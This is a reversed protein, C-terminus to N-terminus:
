LRTEGDKTVVHCYPMPFFLKGGKELYPQERKILEDKFFWILVLMSSPELERAKEESVLEIDTGLTRLGVKEPNRESIYPLAEKDIGFFQLLVNGKTSAGLGAVTGGNKNEQRIFDNTTKKLEEVQLFFDEYTSSEMLKMDDEAKMLRLLNESKERANEKRTVFVRVSGGNVDNTSADYISLGNREMLNNFTTLSFYYLHEHCVDYFSMNEILDPLYSLQICWVGDPSLISKVESSFLNLDPVSYMMAISTAIKCSIDGVVERVKDAYFFDNIVTISDDLKSWDINTAPEVGIRNYVSPYYSLMTGDNCGTDLIYDGEQLDVQSSVADVVEQLADRMMPNTGSRYFYDHFLVERNVTEKLQLLGCDECLVISLPVRVKSLPAEDNNKVFSSALYQEGFTMCETLRDSACIRCSTIDTYLESSKSAVSTM